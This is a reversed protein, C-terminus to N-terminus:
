GSSFLPTVAVAPGLLVQQGGAPHCTQTVHAPLLGAPVSQGRTGGIGTRFPRLQRSGGDDFGAPMSLAVGVAMDNSRPVDERWGAPVDILGIGATQALTM